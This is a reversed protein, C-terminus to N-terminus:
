TILTSPWIVSSPHPPPIKGTYNASELANSNAEMVMTDLSETAIIHCKKRSTCCNIVQFQQYLLCSKLDQIDDPPIRPLHKEESWHKRLDGVKDIVEVEKRGRRM